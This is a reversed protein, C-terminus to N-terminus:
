KSKQGTEKEPRQIVYLGYLNGLFPRKGELYNLTKLHVDGPALADAISSLYRSDRTLDYQKAFGNVNTLTIPHPKYRGNSGHVRALIDLRTELPMQEFRDSGMKDKGNVTKVYDILFHENQYDEWIRRLDGGRLSNFADADEQYKQRRQAIGSVNDDECPIIKWVKTAYTELTLTKDLGKLETQFNELGLQPMRKGREEIIEIAGEVTTKGLFSYINKFFEKRVDDRVFRGDSSYMEWAGNYMAREADTVNNNPYSEKSTVKQELPSIVITEKGKEPESVIVPRTVPAQANELSAIVESKLKYDNNRRMVSSGIYFGLLGALGVVATFGVKNRLSSMFIARIQIIYVKTYIFFGLNIVELTLFFDITLL